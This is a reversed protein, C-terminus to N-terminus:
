LAKNNISKRPAGGNKQVCDGLGEKIFDMAWGELEYPTNDRLKKPTQLLEQIQPKLKPYFELQQLFADQIDKYNYKTDAGRELELREIVQIAIRYFSIRDYERKNAKGDRGPATQEKRRFENNESLLQDKENQLKAIAEAQLLNVGKLNLADEELAAIRASCFLATKQNQENLLRNYDEVAICLTQKGINLNFVNKDILDRNGVRSYRRAHVNKQVDALIPSSAIFVELNYKCIFPIWDDLDTVGFKHMASRFEMANTLTVPWSWNRNLAWKIARWGALICFGGIAIPLYTELWDRSDILAKISELDDVGIFGQKEAGEIVKAFRWKEFYDVAFGTLWLVAASVVLYAAIQFIGRQFINLKM